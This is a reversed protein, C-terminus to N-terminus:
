MRRQMQKFWENSVWAAAGLYPIAGAVWMILGALQQDALNRAEGYLPTQAFTLLAGLFGTHMLTFLVALLAWPAHQHRGKLVTWWFLGASLLFCLHEFAHWWINDVALMYFYPTHWFWIITGHIVAAAMPYHTLRLMARWLEDCRPGTAAAIQPLPHSIVWLPAIVVMILMHQTMHAATSTKAWEDLPGLIALACLVLAGHFGFVFPLKSPKRRLGLLYIVWFTLLLALSLLAAIQDNGSSSLPSHALAVPTNGLLLLSLGIGLTNNSRTDSLYM